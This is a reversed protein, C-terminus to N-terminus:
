GRKSSQEHKLRLLLMTITWGMYRKTRWIMRVKANASASLLYQMSRLDPFFAKREKRSLLAVNYVLTAYQYAVYAKLQEAKKEDAAELLEICRSINDRLTAVAKSSMSHSVSMARQRYALLCQNCYFFTDAKMVLRLTWDIDESTIGERFYLQYQKLLPLRIVKNWAGSVLLDNTILYSLNEAHVSTPISELFYATGLGGDFIKQFNFNLVDVPTESLLRAILMLVDNSLWWDDSDLFIVYDGTAHRIGNNRAAAAGGNEQHIVRIREDKQAWQDCMEGCRDPSGDDVLIVELHRYTQNLVSQVCQDLYEEVKYVPIVVSFRIM